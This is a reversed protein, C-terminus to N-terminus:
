TAAIFEVFTTKYTEGDLLGIVECEFRYLLPLHTQTGPLDAWYILDISKIVLEGETPLPELREPGTFERRLFKELAEDPSVTVQINGDVETWKQHIEVGVVRGDAVAVDFDAGSGWLEIGYLELDFNVILSHVVEKIVTGNPSHTVTKDGEAIKEFTIQLNPPAPYFKRLKESFGYAISKAKDPSPLQPTPIVEGYQRTESYLLASMGIFLLTKNGDKLFLTEPPSPVAESDVNFGFVNQAILRAQEESLTPETVKLRPVAAPVKPFDCELRVKLNGISGVMRPLSAASEEDRLAPHPSLTILGITALLLLILILIVRRKTKFSSLMTTVGKLEMLMAM